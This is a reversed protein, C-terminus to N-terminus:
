FSFRATTHMTNPPTTTNLFHPPTTTNLFHPPVTTTSNGGDPYTVFPNCMCAIALTGFSLITGLTVGLTLFFIMIAGAVEREEPLALPPGYMMALSGYYGNTVGFLLMMVYLIPDQAIFTNSMWEPRNWHESTNMCSFIFVPIFLARLGILLNLNGPKTPWQVMGAITRGILDSLNFGLFCFIPTFYNEYYELTRQSEYSTQVKVLLSPFVSLTIAFNAMVGLALSCVDKYTDLIGRNSILYSRKRQM